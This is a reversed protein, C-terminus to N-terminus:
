ILIIPPECKPPIGPTGRPKNNLYLYLYFCGFATIVATTTAALPILTAKFSTMIPTDPHFAVHIIGTLLTGFSIAQIIGVIRQAKTDRDNYFSVSGMLIIATSGCLVSTTIAVADYPSASM